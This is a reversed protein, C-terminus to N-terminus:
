RNTLGGQQKVNLNEVNSVVLPDPDENELVAVSFPLLIDGVWKYIILTGYIKKPTTRPVNWYNQYWNNSLDRRDRIDNYSDPITGPTYPEDGDELIHVFSFSADKNNGIIDNQTIENFMSEYIYIGTGANNEILNECVMTYNSVGLSVGDYSESVIFRENM